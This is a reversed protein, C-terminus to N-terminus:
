FVFRFYFKHNAVWLRLQLWVLPAAHTTSAFRHHGYGGLICSPHDGLDDPPPAIAKVEETPPWGGWHTTLGGVKNKM